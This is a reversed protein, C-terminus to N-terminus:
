ELSKKVKLLDNLDKSVSPFCIVKVLNLFENMSLAKSSNSLLTKVVFM